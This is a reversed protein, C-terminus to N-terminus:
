SSVKWSSVPDDHVRVPVFVMVLRVGQRSCRSRVFRVAITPGSLLATGALVVLILILAPSRARMATLMRPMPNVRARLSLAALRNMVKKAAEAIRLREAYHLAHPSPSERRYGRMQEGLHVLAILRKRLVSLHM